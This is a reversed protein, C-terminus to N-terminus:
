QGSNAIRVARLSGLIGMVAGTIPITAERGLIQQQSDDGFNLFPPSLKSLAFTGLGPLLTFDGKDKDLPFM